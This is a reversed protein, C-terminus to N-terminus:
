SSGRCDPGEETVPTKDIVIKRHQTATGWWVKKRAGLSSHCQHSKPSVMVHCRSGLDMGVQGNATEVGNDGGLFGVYRLM